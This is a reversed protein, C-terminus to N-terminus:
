LWTLGKRVIDNYMDVSQRFYAKRGEDKGRASFLAHWPGKRFGDVLGGLELMPQWLSQDFRNGLFGSLRQHYYHSYAEQRVFAGGSMVFWCACITAPAYGALQWDLVICEKTDPLLALNGVRYDAHVFTSPYDSLAAYLPQPNEMLSQLADRVDPEVIDFFADWGRKLMDVIDSQHRYHDWQIPWGFTILSEANCLGLEAAKLNEDEWFMAHMAALADLMSHIIKPSVRQRWKVLAHSVDQM